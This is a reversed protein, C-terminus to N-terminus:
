AEKRPLQAKIENLAARMEDKVKDPLGTDSIADDDDLLNQFGPVLGAMLNELTTIRLNLYAYVETATWKNPVKVRSMSLSRSFLV